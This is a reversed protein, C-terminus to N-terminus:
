PPPSCTVSRGSRTARALASTPPSTTTHVRWLMHTPGSTSSGCPPRNTAIAETLHGREAAVVARDALVTGLWITDQHDEFVQQCDRLLAEAQNVHGLRLLPGYDRSRTKAIEHPGANRRRQSALVEANLDLAKQWRRLDTAASVGLQLATERVNWPDVSEDPGPLDPLNEMEALLAEVDALVQETGGGHRLIQLRRGRVALLTWPGAGASRTHEAKQDLVTLAERFRGTDRLLNVLHGGAASAATFDRAAVARGILDRLLPEAEGRDVRALVAALHIAAKLEGTAEAVRRLHPLAVQMIGPSQDRNVALELLFGAVEWQQTRLSYPVAALSAHVVTQSHEGGERKRARQAVTYWWFALNIDVATRLEAPTTTRVAEAVGTHIRYRVLQDTGAADILAAEALSTLLIAPDPPDGACGLHRWLNVWNGVVVASHRDDQEILCLM